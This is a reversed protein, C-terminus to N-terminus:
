GSATAEIERMASPIDPLGAIERVIFGDEVEFAHTLRWDISVTSGKGTARWRLDCVVWPHADVIEV